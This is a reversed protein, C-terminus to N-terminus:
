LINNYIKNYFTEEEIKKIEKRIRERNEKNKGLRM